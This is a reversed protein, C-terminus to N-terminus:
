ANFNQQYWRRVDTVFQRFAVEDQVDPFQGLLVQAAQKSGAGPKQLVLLSKAADASSFFSAPMGLLGQFHAHQALWATLGQAEASKFVATPVFFLGVGGPKLVRLVQEMLLHHAYSHGSKAATEFGKAREDLPYYGVPLDSVVADVDKFPLADLADQHFLTVPSHQLAASMSALALLDENNDVALGRVEIQKAAALQNLVAFLLNGSGAAIDAVTYPSTMEPKLTTLIFSALTALADPTIQQNPELGDREAARVLVLQLAQRIEEASYQTLDVQDFLAALKAKTAADPLGDEVQIQKAHMDEGVELLATLMDVHLHGALLTTAENIVNYLKELHANAM